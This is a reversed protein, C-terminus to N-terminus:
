KKKAGMKIIKRAKFYQLKKMTASDIKGTVKLGNKKQFARVASLTGISFVGTVKISSGAKKLLEHAEKVKAGSDNLKLSKFM